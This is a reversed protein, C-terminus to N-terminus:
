ILYKLISYLASFFCFQMTRIPPWIFIYVLRLLTFGVFRLGVVQLTVHIECETNVNEAYEVDSVNTDVFSTLPM